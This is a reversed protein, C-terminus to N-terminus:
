RPFDNFIRVIFRSSIPYDDFWVIKWSALALICSPVFAFLHQVHSPVDQFLGQSHSTLRTYILSEQSCYSFPFSYFGRSIRMPPDPFHQFDICIMQLKPDEMATMASDRFFFVIM